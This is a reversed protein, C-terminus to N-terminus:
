VPRRMATPMSISHSAKMMSCGQWRRVSHPKIRVLVGPSRRTSALWPAVRTPGGHKIVYDLSEIWEQEEVADLQPQAPDKLMEAM